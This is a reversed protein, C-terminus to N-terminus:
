TEITELQPWQERSLRYSNAPGKGDNLTVVVWEPEWETVVGERELFRVRDGVRPQCM